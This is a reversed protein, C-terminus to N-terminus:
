FYGFKNEVTNRKQTNFSKYQKLWKSQKFSIIEHNKDVIVGHRVFFKLMRYHFLFNKKDTWDCDLKNAKTYSKHKIQKMHGNNLLKKLTLNIKQVFYLVREKKKLKM